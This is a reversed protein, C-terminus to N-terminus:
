REPGGPVRTWLELVFDYYGNTVDWTKLVRGSKIIQFTGDFFGDENRTGVWAAPIGPPVDELREFIPPPVTGPKPRMNRMPWVFASDVEAVTPRTPTFPAPGPESPLPAPEHPACSALLLLLLARKM